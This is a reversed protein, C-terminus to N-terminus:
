RRWPLCPLPRWAHGTRSIQERSNMRTRKAQSLVGSLALTNRFQPNLENFNNAAKGGSCSQLGGKFGYDAGLVVRARVL